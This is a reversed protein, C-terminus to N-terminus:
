WQFDTKQVDGHQQGGKDIEGEGWGRGMQYGYSQEIYRQMNPKNM